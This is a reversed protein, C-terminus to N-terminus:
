RDDVFPKAWDPLQLRNGSGSSEGVLTGSATKFKQLRSPGHPGRSRIVVSRGDDVFEWLDIFPGEPNIRSIIRKNRTIVLENAILGQTPHVATGHAWGVLGNKSVHPLVCGGSATWTESKGDSLTVLVDGPMGKDAERKGDWVITARVPM